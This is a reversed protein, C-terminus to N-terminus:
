PGFPVRGFQKTHERCQGLSFPLEISLVMMWPPQVEIKVTFRSVEKSWRGPEPVCRVKYGKPTSSGYILDMIRLCYHNQMGM